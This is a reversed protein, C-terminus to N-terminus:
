CIFGAKAIRLRKEKPNSHPPQQMTNPSVDVPANKWAGVREAINRVTEHSTAIQSSSSETVHV